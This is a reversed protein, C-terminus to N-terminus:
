CKPGLKIKNCCLYCSLPLFLYFLFLGRSSSRSFLSHGLSFHTESPSVNSLFKTSNGLIEVLVNIVRTTPQGQKQVVMLRCLFSMLPRDLEEEAKLFLQRSLHFPRLVGLWSKGPLSASAPALGSCARLHVRARATYIMHRRSVIESTDYILWM